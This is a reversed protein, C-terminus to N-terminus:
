LHFLGHSQAYTHRHTCTPGGRRVFSLLLTTGPSKNDTMFIAEGLVSFIINGWFLAVPYDFDKKVKEWMIVSRRSPQRQGWCNKTVLFQSNTKTCPLTSASNWRTVASSASFFGTPFARFSGSGRALGLHTFDRPPSMLFPFSGRLDGYWLIFVNRWFM